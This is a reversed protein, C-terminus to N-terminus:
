FDRVDPQFDAANFRLTLTYRNDADETEIKAGLQMAFAKMLQHGLGTSEVNERAGVSNTMTFVCAEGDQVLSVDLSTTKKTVEGIYKVANTAAEAVVLSLPVAQDPYLMVPAIQMNLKLKQGDAIALEASKEVIETILDGANVRGGSQSQYLDRHITALSLVRDQVRRLTRKTEDHRAARIQMNIISSILQLNNKVRHHIEKVLVGKERATDELDAEDRLIKESMRALNEELEQIELPFLPNDEFPEHTSRDEAFADMKRHIRRLHRLVLTNMALMAVAMSAGWMLAPFIASAVVNLRGADVKTQWIAIVSAPSGSIPVVNYRREVGGSNLARFSRPADSQLRLTSRDQPKELGADEISGRSSLIDGEKDVIILDVLGFEEMQISIEPLSSLPVSISVFGAFEGDATFPESVIFVAQQSVAPTKNLTIIPQRAAMIVASTESETFDLTRPTSSCTVIRSEPIVGVFSYDPNDDLFQSLNPACVDPNELLAPAVAGISRAAGVAREILLQETRAVSQTLSLLADAATKDVAESIRNTQYLAIMGLPLLAVTLLAILQISLKRYWTRAIM